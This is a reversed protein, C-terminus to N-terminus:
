HYKKRICLNGFLDRIYNLWAVQKRMDFGLSLLCLFLLLIITLTSCKLVCAPIIIFLMLSLLLLALIIGVTVIRTQIHLVYNYAEYKYIEYEVQQYIDSYFDSSVTSILDVNHDLSLYLPNIKNLEKNINDRITNDEHGWQMNCPHMKDHWYWVNNIDSAIEDLEKATFQHVPFDGGSMILMSGYRAYRNILEKFNDEYANQEKSYMLQGQSWSLFRFYASIKKYFPTMTQVYSDHLRNKRNGLEIYVIIFGGTIVATLISLATSYTELECM